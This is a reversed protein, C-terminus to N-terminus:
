NKAAFESPDLEIIQGGLRELEVARDYSAVDQAARTVAQVLGFKSMDGGSMYHLLVSDKETDNLQFNDAVIEIVESPRSTLQQYQTAVLRDVYENFRTVNLSASVVDIAKSWFARDDLQRTADSFLETTNEDGFTTGENRRGVHHRRLTRQMVAGNTCWNDFIMPDVFIAGCGVESNGIIVGAEVIRAIQQQGGALTIMQSIPRQIRPTSAQIYFRTETIEASRIICGAENLKPVIASFLDFNDLPRYRESLFARAINHGNSLTRLMRKEPQASFWHNINSCLLEPAKTRMRDAYKSPIGVRDAIQGLCLSTPAYQRTQGGITFQLAVSPILANESPMTVMQLCNTPAVYDKKAKSEELIKAALVDISRGTKM